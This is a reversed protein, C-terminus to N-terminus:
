NSLMFKKEINGYLFTTKINLLEIELNLIAWIAFIVKYYM